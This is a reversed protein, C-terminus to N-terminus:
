KVNLLWCVVVNSSRFPLSTLYIDLTLLYVSACFRWLTSFCTNRAQLWNTNSDSAHTFIQPFSHYTEKQIIPAWSVGGRGGRGTRMEAIMLKSSPSVQTNNYAGTASQRDTQRDTQRHRDTDTETHSTNNNNDKKRQRLPPPPPPPSSMYKNPLQGPHRTGWRGTIQGHMESIM